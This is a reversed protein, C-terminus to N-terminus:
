WCYTDRLLDALKDCGDLLGKAERHKLVATKFILKEPEEALRVIEDACKSERRYLSPRLAVIASLVKESHEVLGTFNELRSKLRKIERESTDLKKNLEMRAKDSKDLKQEMDNARQFPSRMEDHEINNRAVGFCGQFAAAVYSDTGLEAVVREIHELADLEQKKTTIKTM